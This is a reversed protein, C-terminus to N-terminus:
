IVNTVSSKALHMCDDLFYEGAETQNINKLKTYVSSEKIGLLVGIEKKNFSPISKLMWNYLMWDMLHSYHLLTMFPTSHGVSVCLQYLIKGSSEKYNLLTKFDRPYININSSNNFSFISNNIISPIREAEQMLLHWTVFSHRLSHFTLNEDGTVVRIVRHIVDYTSSITLLKDLENKITSNSSTFLLHNKINRGAEGKRLKVWDILFDLEDELLLDYLPLWRKASFSKLSGFENVLVRLESHTGGLIDCLRLQLIEMRRLGLRYGLIVILFNINGLRDDACRSPWLSDLVDVYENPMVINAKVSHRTAVFGDLKEFAIKGVPYMSVMFEHFTKIEKSIISQRSIIGDIYDHEESDLKVDHEFLNSNALILEKQENEISQIEEVYQIVSYELIRDYKDAVTVVDMCVIDEGNFFSSLVGSLCNYSRVVSIPINKGRNPATGDLLALCWEALYKIPKSVRENSLLLKRVDDTSNSKLLSSIESITDGEDYPVNSQSSRSLLERKDENSLKRKKIREKKNSIICGYMFREFAHINLSYAINIGTAYDLLYSPLTIANQTKLINLFGAIDNFLCAESKKTKEFVKKLIRSLTKEDIDKSLGWCNNIKISEGMSAMNLRILQMSVNNLYFKKVLGTTCKKEDCPIDIWYIDKNNKIDGYSMNSFILLEKLNLLGGFLIASSIMYIVKESQDMYDYKVLLSKFRKILKQYSKLDEYNKCYVRSKAQPLIIYMPVPVSTVKFGSKIKCKIIEDLFNNCYLIQTIEADAQIEKSINDMTKNDIHGEWTDELFGDIISKLILVVKSRNEEYEQVTRAYIESSFDHKSYKTSFEDEEINRLKDSLIEYCTM